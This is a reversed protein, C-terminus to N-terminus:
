AAVGRKVQDQQEATLFQLYFRETVAVSQHGLRKSLTWLDCGLKGGSGCFERLTAVAYTHRLSHFTYALGVRAQRDGAAAQPKRLAAFRSAFNRYPEGRPGHWFFYPSKQHQPLTRLLEYTEGDMPITRARSNKTVDGQLRIERARFDVAGGDRRLFVIEDERMGTRRAMRVMAGIMVPCEPVFADIAEDTAIQITAKRHRVVRRDFTRFPNDERWGQAICYDFVSACATLDRQKTANSVLRVAGSKLLRRRGNRYALVAAVTKHGADEVVVDRMVPDVQALSSKYRKAVNPKVNLPLYEKLWGEVAEVWGHRVVGDIIEGTLEELWRAARRRAEALNGTRLSQRHDEQGIQKRAYYTVQGHRNVRKYIQVDDASM